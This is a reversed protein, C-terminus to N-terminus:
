GSVHGGSRGGAAAVFQEMLRRDKRGDKEVGSSVDVAYPAVKAIAAAVNGPDLGGALILRAPRPVSDLREWDFTTGTGGAARADFSDFLVAWTRYPAVQGACFGKGVRFAKIVPVPYGLCDSPAEKGHLQVLTLRARAVAERVLAAPADVFVGVRQVGRPLRSTIAAAEAVSVQRRSPAFVFGLAWAGADVAARAEEWSRIGCIKVRAM